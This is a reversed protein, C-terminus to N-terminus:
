ISLWMQAARPPVALNFYSSGNLTMEHQHIQCRYKAPNEMGWTWINVNHWSDSKNIAVIGKAGRRFIICNENEYLMIMPLGHVSNHFNIMQIIDYRLHSDKWRNKDCEYSSENNDSFILPVGGDRGLIYANALHEDHGSLMLTRFTDNYPLDHNITFTLSRYWPLANGYAQPDILTKLNGGLSFADRLTTFLPFDYATIHTEELFPAMFVDEEKENTTLVEGFIFKNKTFDADAINDIKKETIHKIADIRFGDFEMECLKQFLIRQQELVWDNSNLDPLGGLEGYVVDERDNWNDIGDPTNFDYPSFIGKSLDGYLMNDNFYQRKKKYNALEKEGPFNYRDDRAENAMHNIVIDAYIKLNKNHANSIITELEKKTGLQSLLIRYDKPQYRQWWYESNPDSYLIPPILIAGFGADAINNIHEIIKSYKWNFTHLIVDKM